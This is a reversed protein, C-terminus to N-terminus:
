RGLVAIADRLQAPSIRILGDFPRDLELIMLIAGTVALACVFLTAIITANRPAFLGLSIFIVTLWSVVVVLFLMSFSSGRQAFM